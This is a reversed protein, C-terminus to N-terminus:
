AHNSRRVLRIGFAVAAISVVLLATISGIVGIPDWETFPLLSRIIYAAYATWLAYLTGAVGCLVLVWGLVTKWAMM